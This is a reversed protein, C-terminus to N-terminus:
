SFWRKMKRIITIKRGGSILSIEKLKDKLKTIESAKWDSDVKLYKIEQKLSKNQEELRLKNKVLNEIDMM